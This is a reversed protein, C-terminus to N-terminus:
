RRIHRGGVANHKDLWHHVDIRGIVISFYMGRRQCTHFRRPLYRRQGYHWIRFHKRAIVLGSSWSTAQVTINHYAPDNFYGSGEHAGVMKVSRTSLCHRGYYRVRPAARQTTNYTNFIGPPKVLFQHPTTSSIPTSLVTSSTSAPVSAVTAAHANPAEVVLVLTQILVLLLFAWFPKYALARRTTPRRKEIFSAIRMHM